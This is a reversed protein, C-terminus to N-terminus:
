DKVADLRIVVSQLPAFGVRRDNECYFIVGTEDTNFYKAEIYYIDGMSNVQFTKM